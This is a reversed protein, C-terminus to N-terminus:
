QNSFSRYQSFEVREQRILEDHFQIDGEMCDPLSILMYGILIAAIIIKIIRNLSRAKGNRGFKVFFHITEGGKKTFSGDRYQDHHSKKKEHKLPEIVRYM